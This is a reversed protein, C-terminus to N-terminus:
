PDYIIAQKLDLDVAVETVGEIKKLGDEAQKAGDAFDLGIIPLTAEKISM